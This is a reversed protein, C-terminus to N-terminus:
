VCAATKLMKLTWRGRVHAWVCRVSRAAAIHVHRSTTAAAQFDTHRRESASKAHCRSSAGAFDRRASQRARDLRGRMEARKIARATYAHVMIPINACQAEEVAAQLEEWSYQLSDIRDTPSAVGGSVMLKIQSPVAGSRRAAPAASRLSAVCVASLGAYCLCENFHLKALPTSTATAASL